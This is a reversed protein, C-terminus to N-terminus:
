VKRQNKSTQEQVFCRRCLAEYSEKEGIFVKENSSSIRHSFNAINGCKVCIAHVKTVFEAVAMLEPMCGFPNGMYDMDLGAVIVRVNHNALTKCVEVIDKDFFQVEDIAVVQATGVKSLIEQSKEIPTAFIANANHSVVHKSHYRNEISPKFILTEMKAIKARNIRRILEETKGSFMSGCIVELWGINARNKDETLTPEVFMSAKKTHAFFKTIKEHAFNLLKEQKILFNYFIFHKKLLFKLVGIKIRLSYLNSNYEKM